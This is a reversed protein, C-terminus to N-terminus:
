NYIALNVECRKSLLLVYSYVELQVQKFELYSTTAWMENGKRIKNECTHNLSHYSADPTQTIADSRREKPQYKEHKM